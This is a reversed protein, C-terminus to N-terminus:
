ARLKERPEGGAASARAAKRAQARAIAAAIAADAGAKDASKAAAARRRAARQAAHEAAQREIRRQRAEFRQRAQAAQAREARRRRLATKAARYHPVLPIRSPCVSACAGCEICDFLRHEDLRPYDQARAFRYLQQPLLEAPCVEACFGCRICASAAAPEAFPSDALPSPNVTKVAGRGAGPDARRDSAILRADAPTAPRERRRQALSEVPREAPSEVPRMEICDVPCPAVCLDCGTCQAAIVTHMQKAAGVIADVPCAQICKACGICEDELIFAVCPASEEGHEANLPLPEVGLLDALAAIGAAGGPPCKDIADGAAIAEAYPRCGPYGCQGCQTQPLLADIREAIRHGEARVRSSALGLLGGCAAGLAAMAAIAALLPPHGISEPLM